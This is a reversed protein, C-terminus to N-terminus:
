SRRGRVEYFGDLDPWLAMVKRSAVSSWSNNLRHERGRDDIESRLLEFSRKMSGRTVGVSREEYAMDRLRVLLWPNERCFGEFAEEASPRRKSVVVSDWLDPQAEITM